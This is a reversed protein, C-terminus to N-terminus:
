EHLWAHTEDAGTNSDLGSASIYYCQLAGASALTISGANGNTGPNTLDVYNSGSPCTGAWAPLGIALLGVLYLLKKVM